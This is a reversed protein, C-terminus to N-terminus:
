ARSGARARARRGPRRGACGRRTSRDLGGFPQARQAGAHAERDGVPLHGLALQLRDHHVIQAAIVVHEHARRDDLGADVDRLRVRQDDLVGVGEAQGLEVLDAPADSAAALAGVRIQHVVGGGRERRVGRLPQRRQRVVGLEAGSEAHRHAVQLQAAGAVQEPVLLGPVDGREAELQVHLHEVFGHALGPGGVALHPLLLQGLRHAQVDVDVGVDRGVVDGVLLGLDLDVAADGASQLHGFHLLQALLELIAEPRHGLRQRVQERQLARPDLEALGAGRRHAEAAVAEGDRRDLEVGYARTSQALLQGLRQVLGPARLDGHAHRALARRAKRGHHLGGVYQEDSVRSAAQVIM